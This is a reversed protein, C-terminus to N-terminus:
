DNNRVYLSLLFPPYSFQREVHWNPKLLKYVADARKILKISGTGGLVWVRPAGGITGVIRQKLQDGSLPKPNGYKTSTEYGDWGVGPPFFDISGQTEIFGGSIAPRKQLYHYAAMTCESVPFCLLRDGDQQQSGITSMIGRWDDYTYTHMSWTTIGLSGIVAVAGVFAGIRRPMSTIMVTSLWLFPVVAWAYYRVRPYNDRLLQSILPGAIAIIILLVLALTKRNLIKSRFERSYYTLGLLILFSIAVVSGFIYSTGRMLIDGGNNQPLVFGMMAIPGDYFVVRLVTFFGPVDFGAWKSSGINSLGWIAIIVLLAFQSLLWARFREYKRGYGVLYFLAASVVLFFGYFHAFLVAATALFYASWNVKGGRNLSRVLLFLSLSSLAISLAKDTAERSYYFLFPSSAALAAAWLGARRSLYERGLLYMFWITTVGSIFSVMRIWTDSTGFYIWFHTILNYLFPHGSATSQVMMQKLPLSGAWVTFLEDFWLSERSIEAFRLIAGATIIISLLSIYALKDRNVNIYNSLRLSM